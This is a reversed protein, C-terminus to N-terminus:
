TSGSITVTSSRRGSTSRAISTRAVMVPSAYRSPRIRMTWAPPLPGHSRGSFPGPGRGSGPHVDRVNFRGRSSPTLGLESALRVQTTMMREWRSFTPNVAPTGSCDRVLAPARVLAEGLRTIADTLLVYSTIVDQDARFATHM